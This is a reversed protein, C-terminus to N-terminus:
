DDSQAARMLFAGLINLVVTILLVNFDFRRSTTWQLVLLALVMIDMLVLVTGILPKLWM